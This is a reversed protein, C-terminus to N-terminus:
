LETATAVPISGYQDLKALEPDDLLRAEVIDFTNLLHLRLLSCAGDIDSEVIAQLLLRHEDQAQTLSDPAMVYVRLYPEVANWLTRVTKLLRPKPVVDYALWHFSSNCERWRDLDGDCEDMAEVQASLADMLDARHHILPIAQELALSELALRMEYIDRMDDVSLANVIVRRYQEFTVLGEAALQQLAERVPVPSVQFQRALTAIQLTGPPLKGSAMQARLEQAIVDPLPPKALTM